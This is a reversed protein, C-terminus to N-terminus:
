FQAQPMIPQQAAGGKKGAAIMITLAAQVRAMANQLGGKPLAHAAASAQQYIPAWKQFFAQVKPTGKVAGTAFRQMGVGTCGTQWTTFPISRLKNAFSSNNVVAATNTLYKQQAAATAALQM